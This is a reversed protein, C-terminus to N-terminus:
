DLLLPYAGLNLVPEPLLVGRGQMTGLGAAPLPLSVDMVGPGVMRLHEPILPASVGIFFPEWSIVRCSASAGSLDGHWWPNGTLLLITYINCTLLSAVDILLELLNQKYCLM